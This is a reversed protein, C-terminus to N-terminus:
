ARETIPYYGVTIKNDPLRTGKKIPVVMWEISECDNVADEEKDHAGLVEFLGASPWKGTFFIM